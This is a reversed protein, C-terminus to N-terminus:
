STQYIMNKCQEKKSQIGVKRDSKQNTMKQTSKTRVGKGREGRGSGKVKNIKTVYNCIIHM